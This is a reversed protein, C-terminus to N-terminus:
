ASSGARFAPIEEMAPRGTRKDLFGFASHEHALAAKLTSEKEAEYREPEVERLWEAVILELPTDGSIAFEEGCEPCVLTMHQYGSQEELKELRRRMGGV